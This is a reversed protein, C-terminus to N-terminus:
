GPYSWSLYVARDLLAWACRGGLSSILQANSTAQPLHHAVNYTTICIAGSPAIACTLTPRDSSPTLPAIKIQQHTEPYVSTQRM